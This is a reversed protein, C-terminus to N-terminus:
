LMVPLLGQRLGALVFLAIQLLLLLALPSLDVGGVPPIFRRFPRLLPATLANFIDAMPAYPNVWSFVAAILSPEAPNPGRPVYENRFERRKLASPELLADMVESLGIQAYHHRSVSVENALAQILATRAIRSTFQGTETDTLWAGLMLLCDSEEVMRRSYPHGAAGMYTGIFNPHHEPFVAKGMFSTAVPLNYRPSYGLSFQAVQSIYAVFQRAVPLDLGFRQRLMAMTEETAAGSEAAMVDAADGPALKLLAFNLILIALVTPVAQWLTRRVVKLMQRRRKM